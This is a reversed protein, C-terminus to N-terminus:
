GDQGIVKFQVHYNLAEVNYRADIEDEMHRVQDNGISLIRSRIAKYAKKDININGSEQEKDLMDLIGVFIRKMKHRMSVKLKKKSGVSWNDVKVDIHDSLKDKGSRRITIYGDEVIRESM